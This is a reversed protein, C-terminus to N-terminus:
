GVGVPTRGELRAVVDSTKVIPLGIWGMVDLAATHIHETDAACADEVVYVTYGLDWAPLATQLVCNNTVVGCIAITKVGANRLIPDMGSSVIASAGPKDVVAEGVKPEIDERVDHEWTGRLSQARRQIDRLNVVTDAYDDFQAGARIFMVRGGVERYAKLLSKVNPMLLNEVRDWYYSLDDGEAEWVRNLGGTPHACFNNVDVIVLASTKPDENELLPALTQFPSLEM